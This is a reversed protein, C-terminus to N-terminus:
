AVREESDDMLRLGPEPSASLSADASFDQQESLDGAAQIEGSELGAAGQGLRRQTYTSYDVERQSEQLASTLGIAAAAPLVFRHTASLDLKQRSGYGARDLIDSAISDKLRKDGTTRFIEVKGTLMEHAYGQLRAAIDTQKDANLAMMAGLIILSDPHTLIVNTYVQSIKYRESIEKPTMGASRDCLMAIHRAHLKQPEWAQLPRNRVLREQLAALIVEQVRAQAAGHSAISTGTSEVAVPQPSPLGGELGGGEEEAM